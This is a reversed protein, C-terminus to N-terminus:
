PEIKKLQMEIATIYKYNLTTMNELCWRLYKHDEINSIKEGKYKKGWYCCIKSMDDQPINKLYSNCGNCYATHQTSKKIIHFENLLGCKKCILDMKQEM